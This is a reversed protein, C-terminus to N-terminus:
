GPQLRAEVFLWPTSGSRFFDEKNILPQMTWPIWVGSKLQGAFGAPTVGVVTFTQRNLRIVRGIIHRDASFQERWMPESVIAVPAGGPSSCEDARFLRGLAARELGYLSFFNCTVLMSVNPRPDDDMAAHFQGWAALDRVSRAQRQYSRFDDLSTLWNEEHEWKGSYQPILQVFSAPDREVRARFVLGNVLTFTATNLGIGLALTLVVALALLPTRWFSRIAYRVDQLGTELWANM